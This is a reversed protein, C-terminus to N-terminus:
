SGLGGGEGYRVRRLQRAGIEIVPNGQADEIERVYEAPMEHGNYFVWEVSM